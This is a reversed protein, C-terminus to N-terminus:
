VYYKYFIVTVIVFVVFLLVLIKKLVSYNSEVDNDEIEIVNVTINDKGGKKISTDILKKVLKDGKNESFFIKCIEEETLMDTLGDSCMLIKDGKKLDVNKIYPSLKIDDIDLGMYQILTKRDFGDDMKIFQVHDKSIKELRNERYIFVPSDGVNFVTAVGNIIYVGSLTTGSIGVGKKHNNKVLSLNIDNIYQNIVTINDSNDDELEYLFNKYTNKVENALFYSSEGGFNEGGMGDFIFELISENNKKCTVIGTDENNLDRIKIGNHLYNDQNTARVKGIKSCVSSKIEM